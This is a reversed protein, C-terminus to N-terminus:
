ASFGIFKRKLRIIGRLKSGPLIVHYDALKADLRERLKDIHNASVSGNGQCNQEHDTM